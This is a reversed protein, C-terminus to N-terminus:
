SFVRWFRVRQKDRDRLQM